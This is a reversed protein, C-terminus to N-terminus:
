VLAKVTPDIAINLLYPGGKHELATRLAAELKDPESVRAATAGLGRAVEILDLNPVNLGPIKEFDGYYSQAFGKLINYGANDVILYTINLREQAATWLAQVSYLASGDGVVAVVPRQPAALAAGVAAPMAWGLGGSAMHFYSNPEAVPVFRRLDASSSIAEDLIM